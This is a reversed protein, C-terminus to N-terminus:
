LFTPRRLKTSWTVDTKRCLDALKHAFTLPAPLRNGKFSIWNMRTFATIGRALDAKLLQIDGQITHKEITYLIPRPTGLYNGHHIIPQTSAIVFSKPDYYDTIALYQDPKPEIDEEDPDGEFIRLGSSKNATVYAGELSFQHLVEIVASIERDMDHIRGDRLIIACDFSIQRRQLDGLLETLITDLDKFEDASSIDFGSSTAGLYEGRDSFSAAAATLSPKEGYSDRYRDLGIFIANPTTIGTQFLYPLGGMKAILQLILPYIYGREINDNNLANLITSALTQQTPIDKFVTLEKTLTNYFWDSSS